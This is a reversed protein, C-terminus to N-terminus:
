RYTSLVLLVHLNSITPPQQKNGRTSICVTSVVTFVYLYVIYILHLSHTLWRFYHRVDSIPRVDSIVDSMQCLNSMQFLTQSRTYILLLLPYFLLGCLDPMQWLDSMQCLDSMLNTNCFMCLMYQLIPTRRFDGIYRFDRILLFDCIFRFDGIYWFDGIYLVDWIYRFFRLYIQFRLYIPLVLM